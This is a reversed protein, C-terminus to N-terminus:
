TGNPVYSPVPRSLVPRSPVPRSPVSRSSGNPGVNPAGLFQPVPQGMLRFKASKENWMKGRSRGMGCGHFVFKYCKIVFNRMMRKMRNRGTQTGFPVKYGRSRSFPRIAKRM